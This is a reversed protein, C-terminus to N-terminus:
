KLDDRIMSWLLAVIFSAAITMREAIVPSDEIPLGYELVLLTVVPALAHRVVRFLETSFSAM